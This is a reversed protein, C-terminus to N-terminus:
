LIEFSGDNKNIKIVGRRTLDKDYDNQLFLWNNSEVRKYTRCYFEGTEINYYNNEISYVCSNNVVYPTQFLPAEFKVNGFSDLICWRGELHPKRNEEKTISDDYFAEHYRLLTFYKENIDGGFGGKRFLYPNIVDENRTLNVFDDLSGINWRKRYDESIKTPVLKLNTEM